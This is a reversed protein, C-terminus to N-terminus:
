SRSCGVSLLHSLSKKEFGESNTVIIEDPTRMDGRKFEVKLQADGSSDSLAEIAKMNGKEAQLMLGTMRAQKAQFKARREEKFAYEDSEIFDSFEKRDFGFADAVDSRSMGNKIAEFFSDEISEFDIKEM